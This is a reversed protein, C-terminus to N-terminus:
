PDLFVIHSSQMEGPSGGVRGRPPRARSCRLNRLAAFGHAIGTSLHRLDLALGLKWNIAFDGDRVLVAVGVVRCSDMSQKNM